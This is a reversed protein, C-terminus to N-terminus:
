FSSSKMALYLLQTTAHMQKDIYSGNPSTKKAKAYYDQAERLAKAAEKIDKKARTKDWKRLLEKGKALCEDGKRTEESLQAPTDDVASNFTYLDDEPDDGTEAPQPNDDHTAETPAEATDGDSAAELPDDKPDEMGLLDEVMRRFSDPGDDAAAPTDDHKPPKDALDGAPDDPRGATVPEDDTTDGRPTQHDIAAHAATAADQEKLAVRGTKAPTTNEARPVDPNQQLAAHSKDPSERMYGYVFGIIFDTLLIVFVFTLFGTRKGGSRAQKM